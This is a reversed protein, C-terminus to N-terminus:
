GAEVTLHYTRKLIKNSRGMARPMIRKITVAKNIYFRVVKFDDASKGDKNQYAINASLSKLLKSVVKASNKPIADLIQISDTIRKNVILPSLMMVHMKKVRITRAHAKYIKESM